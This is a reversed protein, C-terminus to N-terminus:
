LTCLALIDVFENAFTIKDKTAHSVLVDFEEISSRDDFVSKITTSDQVLQAQLRKHLQAIENDYSAQINKLQQEQKKVLQNDADTRERQPKLSITDRKTRKASLKKAEDAQSKAAREQDRTLSEIQRTKSAAISASTNKTISRRIDGIRSLCEAEKKTYQAIKREISAIDNDPQNLERQISEVSMCCRWQFQCLRRKCFFRFWIRLCRGQSLLRGFVCALVKVTKRTRM